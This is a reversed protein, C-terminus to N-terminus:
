KIFKVSSLIQRNIPSVPDYIIRYTAPDHHILIAVRQKGDWQFSYQQATSGAISDDTLETITFREDEFQKELYARHQQYDDHPSLDRYRRVEFYVEQSDRSIFHVRVFDSTEEEELEVMNGQPTVAPYRFRLQFRPDAFTKWNKM